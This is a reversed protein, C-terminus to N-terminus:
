DEGCAPGGEALPDCSLGAGCEEVVWVGGECRAVHDFKWCAPGDAGLECATGEFTCECHDRDLECELSRQPPDLAMCYAECSQASWLLEGAPTMECVAIDDYSICEQDGLYACAGSMAPANCRCVASEAGTTLCGLLGGQSACVQKCDIRSWSRQECRWLVAAGECQSGPDICPEGEFYRGAETDVGDTDTDGGGGGGGGACGVLLAVIVGERWARLDARQRPRSGM